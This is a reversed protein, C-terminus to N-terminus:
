IWKNRSTVYERKGEKRKRGFKLVLAEVKASDVALDKVFPWLESM